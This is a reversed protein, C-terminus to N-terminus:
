LLVLWTPHMLVCVCVYTHIRVCVSMHLRVCVHVCARVCVCVSPELSAHMYVYLIYACSCVLVCWVLGLRLGEHLSLGVPVRVVCGLVRCRVMLVMCVTARTPTMALAQQLPFISSFYVLLHPALTLPGRRCLVFNLCELEESSFTGKLGGKVSLCEGNCEGQLMFCKM